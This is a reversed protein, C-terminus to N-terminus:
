ALSPPENQTGLRGQALGRGELGMHMHIYIYINIYKYMHIYIYIHMHKQFCPHTKGPQSGALASAWQGEAIDNDNSDEFAVPSHIYFRKAVPPKQLSLHDHSIYSIPLPCWCKSTESVPTKQLSLHDHCIYIYIFIWMYIYIYTYIYYRYCIYIYIVYIYRHM